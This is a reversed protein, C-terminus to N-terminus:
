VPLSLQQGHKVSFYLRYYYLQRRLRSVSYGRRRLLFYYILVVDFIFVLESFTVEIHTGPVQGLVLLQNLM